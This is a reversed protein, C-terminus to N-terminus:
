SGQRFQYEPNKTSFDLDTFGNNLKLHLYTYEEFLEPAGGPERPWRYSEYRTPMKLEDDVFIRAVHFSFCDRQKPHVVQIVTCPRQDVKANKFYQVECEGYQKDQEGVEALRRVLNVMGIETLPYHRGSTGLLGAPSIAMPVRMRANHALMNGQNEGTVYVVEQGKVTNPAEFSVYVSFPAHRIKVFMYEYNTLVGDIRERRVLTASYDKLKEVAPLGEKAWKLVPTLPHETSSDWRTPLNGLHSTEGELSTKPSTSSSALESSSLATQSVVPSGVSSQAQANTSITAWAITCGLTSALLLRQTDM